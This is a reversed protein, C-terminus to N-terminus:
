RCSAGRSSAEGGDDVPMVGRSDASSPSVPGDFLIGLSTRSSSTLELRRSFGASGAGGTLWPPAESAASIGSTLSSELSSPMACSM